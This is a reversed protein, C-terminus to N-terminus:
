NTSGQKSEEEKNEARKRKKRLVDSAYHKYYYDLNDYFAMKAYLKIEREALVMLTLLRNRRDVQQDINDSAKEAVGKLKILDLAETNAEEMYADDIDQGGPSVQALLDRHGECFKVLTIIDGLADTTGNGKRIQDYVRKDDPNNTKQVIFSAAALLLKKTNEAKDMRQSFEEVVEEQTGEAVIREAQVTPIKELYYDFKPMRDWTFKAAELAIRDEQAQASLGSFESIFDNYARGTRVLQDPTLTKIEQEVVADLDISDQTAM